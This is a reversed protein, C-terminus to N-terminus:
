DGKLPPNKWQGIYRTYSNMVTDKKINHALVQTKQCIDCLLHYNTWNWSVTNWSSRKITLWYYSETNQPIKKQLELEIQTRQNWMPVDKLMASIERLISYGRAKWSAITYKLNAKTTLIGGIYKRQRIGKMNWWLKNKYSM